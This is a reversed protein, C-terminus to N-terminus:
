LRALIERRKEAYEDEAVLGATRLNELEVLSAQVSTSAAIAPYDGFSTSARDATPVPRTPVETSDAVPRGGAVAESGPAGGAAPGLEALYTALGVEIWRREAAAASLVGLWRALSTFHDDRAKSALMGRRNAVVLRLAGAAGARVSTTDSASATPPAAYQVTVEAHGAAVGVIAHLPIEALLRRTARVQAVLSGDRLALSANDTPPIGDGAMRYTLADALHGVADALTAGATSSGIANVKMTYRMTLSRAVSETEPAVELRAAGIPGAAAEDRRSRRAAGCAPCVDLLPHVSGGCKSCRLDDLTLPMRVPYRVRLDALRPGPHGEVLDIM